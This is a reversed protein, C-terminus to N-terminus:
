GLFFNPVALNRVREATCTVEKIRKALKTAEWQGLAMPCVLWGYNFISGCQALVLRSAMGLPGMGMAAVPLISSTRELLQLLCALDSPRNLYTAVKFIDAGCQKAQDAKKLLENVSPTESFNHFSAIIRVRFRRAIQLIPSLEEWFQLELDVLSALPVSIKLLKLRKELTLNKRGGEEPHRATVILPKHSNAIIKLRPLQDLLDLRLEIIDVGLVADILHELKKRKQSHFVGVVNPRDLCLAIPM